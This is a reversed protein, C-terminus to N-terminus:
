GDPCSDHQGGGRNMVQLLIIRIRLREINVSIQGPALLVLFVSRIPGETEARM